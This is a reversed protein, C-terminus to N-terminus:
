GEDILQFIGDAVPIKDRILNVLRLRHLRGCLAAELHLALLKVPTSHVRGGAGLELFQETALFADGNVGGSKFPFERYRLAVAGNDTFKPVNEFVAIGVRFAHAASRKDPFCNDESDSLPM